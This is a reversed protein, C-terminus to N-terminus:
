LASFYTRNGSCIPTRRGEQSDRQIVKKDTIYIKGECFSARARNLTNSQSYTPRQEDVYLAKGANLPTEWGSVNKKKKKVLKTFPLCINHVERGGQERKEESQREQIQTLVVHHNLLKRVLANCGNLPKRSLQSQTKTVGNNSERAHFSPVNSVGVMPTRAPPPPPPLGGLRPFNRAFRM